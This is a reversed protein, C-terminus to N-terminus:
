RMGEQLGMGDYTYNFNMAVRYGKGAQGGPISDSVSNDEAAAATTTTTIYSHKNLMTVIAIHIEQPVITAPLIICTLSERSEPWMADM